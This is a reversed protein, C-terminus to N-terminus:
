KHARTEHNVYEGPNWPGAEIPTTTGMPVGFVM